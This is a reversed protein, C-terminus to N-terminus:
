FFLLNDHGAFGYNFDKGVILKFDGRLSSCHQLHYTLEFVVRRGIINGFVQFLVKRM